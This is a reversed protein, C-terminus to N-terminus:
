LTNRYRSRWESPSIGESARFVRRFYADDKWGLGGAVSKISKSTYILQNKAEQIKLRNFYAVPTYGTKAKFLRRMQVTSYGIDRACRQFNFSEDALRKAMENEVISVPNNEVYQPKLMGSATLGFLAVALFYRYDADVAGTKAVRRMELWIDPSSDRVVPNGAPFADNKLYEFITSGGLLLWCESWLGESRTGYSHAIGPILLVTDGANLKIDGSVPSYFFGSGECLHVLGLCPLEDAERNCANPEMQKGAGSAILQISM